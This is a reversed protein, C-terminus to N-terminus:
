KNERYTAWFSDMRTSQGTSFLYMCADDTYDMFNEIPDLGVTKGKCTDRNSPCGYAASREAPTDSVDDGIGSCGGQFTHYLGLWHGVEHTATDGLNYPTYNSGPLSAWYCVVGDRKPNTAYDTPFTAWGLLGAGGNLYFNLDDATGLRLTNKMDTEAATGPGAGYWTSNLTYDTGSKIFRFPTNAGVGGPAAGSYAANLVNIQADLWSTPVFGVGSTGATGNQQIVHYYVNITVSGAARTLVNPAAGGAARGNGVSNDEEARELTGCKHKSEIFDQLTNYVTGDPGIFTGNGQLGPHTEPRGQQAGVTKLGIFLAASLACCALMSFIVTKKRM